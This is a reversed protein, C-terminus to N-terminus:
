PKEIIIEAEDMNKLGAANGEETDVHMVSGPAAPKAIEIEVNEFIVAREGFTRVRVKDGGDLGLEDALERKLHIHRGAVIACPLEIEGATGIIKVTAAGELNGSKRLPAEVGLKFNDGALIEAQVYKREPGMVRVNELRGHPGELTVTENCAYQGRNGLVYRKLTMGQEGFLIKAAEGTLHVHRNSLMVKIMPM